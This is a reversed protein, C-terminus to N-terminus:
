LKSDSEILEISNSDFSESFEYLEIDNLESLLDLLVNEVDAKDAEAAEADHWEFSGPTLEYSDDILLENIKDECVEIRSRRTDLPEVIGGPAGVLLDIATGDLVARSSSAGAGVTVLLM